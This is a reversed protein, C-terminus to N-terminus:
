SETCTFGSLPWTSLYFSPFTERQWGVIRMLARSFPSCDSVVESSKSPICRLPRSGLVSMLAQSFPSCGSFAGYSKSSICRLPKSGSVIMGLPHERERQAPIVRMVEKSPGVVGRQQLPNRRGNGDTFAKKKKKCARPRLHHPVLPASGSLKLSRAQTRVSAGRVGQHASCM